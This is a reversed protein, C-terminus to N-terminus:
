GLVKRSIPVQRRAVWVLAASSGYAIIVTIMSSQGTIRGALSLILPHVLYVGFMCDALPQVYPWPTEGRSGLWMALVVACAGLTYPLSVGSIHAIDAFILGIALLGLGIAADRQFKSGLGFAVGILVAPTAQAWQLYPAGWSISIPRWISATALALTASAVALWFAVRPAIHPKIANLGVLVVFIYPLFWLHRGTGYLLGSIPEATPLLPKHLARNLGAYFILWFLWPLLFTTTLVCPSRIKNWGYLCDFMPSLILFAVLGAYGVDGGPAHAHFLM